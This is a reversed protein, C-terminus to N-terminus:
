RRTPVARWAWAGQLRGWARALHRPSWLLLRLPLALATAWVLQLRKRQARQPSQHLQTFTLKSQAHHYGRLYEGRTPRKTRVSGRSRHLVRVEPAVQLVHGARSLRLCLDDDEYYLFFREDFGGVSLFAQVPMLMVAGCVFGVCLAGSAGPGRPAWDTMSMRYNVEAHEADRMLQPGVLGVRADAAAESWLQAIAAPTIECDPNLLLVYPTRAAAVGRNNAAGFGLNEALAVVRAQPMAQKASEVSGDESGNDVVVVHPWDGLAAALTPMCHASNFSVVVVTVEARAAAETTPTDAKTAETM